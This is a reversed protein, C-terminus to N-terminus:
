PLVCGTGPLLSQERLPRPLFFRFPRGQIKLFPANKPSPVSELNRELIHGSEATAVDQASQDRIRHRRQSGTHIARHPPDLVAIVGSAIYGEDGTVVRDRTAVDDILHLPLEVAKPLQGALPLLV